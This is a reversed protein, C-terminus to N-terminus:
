RILEQREQGSGRRGIRADDEAALFLLIGSALPNVRGLDRVRPRLHQVDLGARPGVLVLVDLRAAPQERDVALGHASECRGLLTQLRSCLRRCRGVREDLQHPLAAGLLSHGRRLEAGLHLAPVEQLPGDCWGM